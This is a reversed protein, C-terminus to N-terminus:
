RLFREVQVIAARMNALADKLTDVTESRPTKKEVLNQWSPLHILPHLYGTEDPRIDCYAGEFGTLSHIRRCGLPTGRVRSLKFDVLHPNYEPQSAFLYHLLSKAEPLFGLTQFLIKEERVAIERNERMAAIMCGLAPCAGELAYLDPYKESVAKLRPHLVLNERGAPESVAAMQAFAATRAKELFGLQAMLDRDACEPFFSRKGSLRHVGLPLKVLNGLGKGSLTDQKPFVELHFCRLDKELGQVVQSLARRVMRAPVPEAMFYWFHFGKYGSVEVLPDLGMAGSIERIRSVMYLREKRVQAAAQAGARDQRMDAVLDADIVGCRVTGDAAMLYFGYTKLGKFHDELDAEGIARRVPVYGSQRNERDSWQRAFVDARGSFLGMFLRVLRQRENMAVFPAAASDLDVRDEHAHPFPDTGLWSRIRDEPLVARARGVAAALDARQDLIELLEIYAKWAPEFGPDKRTVWELVALATDALGAIQAIGAWELAQQSSLKEWVAKRGLIERIKANEHDQLVAKSLRRILLTYDAGGSVSLVAQGPHISSSSVSSTM